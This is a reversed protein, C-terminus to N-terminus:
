CGWGTNGDRGGAITVVRDGDIFFLLVNGESRVAFVDTTHPGPERTAYPIKARLEATTLGVRGGSPTTHRPNSTSFETLVGDGFQLNLGPQADTLYKLSGDGGGCMSIQAARGSVSEAKSVPDGLRLPGVADTSLQWDGSPAPTTPPAPGPEPEPQPDALPLTIVVTTSPATTVTTTAVTATSTTTTSSTTTSDPAATTVSSTGGRVVVVVLASVVVIAIGGSALLVWRWPSRSTIAAGCSSCFVADALLPAKCTSCTAM